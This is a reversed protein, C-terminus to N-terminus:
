DTPICRAYFRRNSASNSSQPQAFIATSRWVPNCYFALCSKLSARASIAPPGANGSFPELSVRRDGPRVLRRRSSKAAILRRFGSAVGLWQFIYRVAQLRRCRGAREISSARCATQSAHLRTELRRLCGPTVACVLFSSLLRQRGRDCRAAQPLCAAQLASAWGCSMGAAYAQARSGCGSKADCLKSLPAVSRWARAQLRAASSRSHSAKPRGSRCCAIAHARPPVQARRPGEAFCCPAAPSLTHLCPAPPRRHPPPQRPRRYQGSKSARRVGRSGTM